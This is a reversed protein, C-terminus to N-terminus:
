RSHTADRVADKAGGVANQVKGAAKETAGEVQTKRDGTMKGAAEKGAGKVQHATGEIRDKDM